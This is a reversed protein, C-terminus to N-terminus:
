TERKIAAETLLSVQKMFMQKQLSIHVPLAENSLFSSFQTEFLLKEERRTGAATAASLGEVKHHHSLPQVV